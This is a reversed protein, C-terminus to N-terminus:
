YFPLYSALEWTTIEDPNWPEGSAEARGLEYRRLALFARTLDVGMEACLAEDRELAALGEPLTHPTHRDTNPEGDGDGAQPEPCPLAEMFGLRAAHLMAAAALYPNATGCPMRNEIRTAAGRQAPVRYTSTRNDLGWNAWYGAILGPRLRKYSNTLPASWGSIAEHHRILGAIAHRTLDSLGDPDSPDAMSNDAGEIPTFSLNIHLGSGVQMADPRGLFSARYGKAAAVERVMERCLFARDTADLAPGYRLNIEMQGPSFEAMVGELDLRMSEALDFYDLLLGTPDSFPGTGYVRHAQGAAPRWGSESAEDPEFVYFELEYGIHAEYGLARWGDVATALATRPCIAVPTDDSKTLSAVAVDTDPEWGPRLSGPDVTASMDPFGVDGSYGAVPQIEGDIGMVLTTIAHHTHETVRAAPIYRGHSLGNLDSWFTRVRRNGM